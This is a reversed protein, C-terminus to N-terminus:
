PQRSKELLARAEETRDAPVMLEIPFYPAFFQMTARAYQGRAWAPLGAASLAALAPEVEYVRHVPWASAWTGARRMRAEDLLDLVIAVGLLLNIASPFAIAVLSQALHAPLWALTLFALSWAATNPLLAAARMAARGHVRSREDSTKATLGAWADGVHRPRYFLVSLGATLLTLLVFYTVTYVLASGELFRTVESLVPLDLFNALLAPLTVMGGAIALPAIGSAPIPLRRPQETSTGLGPLHGRLMRAAGWAIVAFGLVMLVLEATSLMEAQAARLLQNMSGSVGPLVFGLLVVAYGNGLGAKDVLVALLHLVVVGGVLVLAIVPMPLADPGSFLTRGEYNFDLYYRTMGFSQFLAFGLGLLLAASRLRARERPGGTRWRRWPPIVLAALEIVAFASLIPNLGLSFVNFPLDSGVPMGLQEYSELIFPDLGPLLVMHSLAAAILAALSIAVRRVFDEPVGETRPLAVTLEASPEASAV